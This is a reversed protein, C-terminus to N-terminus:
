LKDLDVVGIFPLNRFKEDLDLGYGFVFKDEIVFALRNSEIWRSEVECFVCGNERDAYSKQIARFNTDYKNHKQINCTNCLAQYNSLDNKGGKSRPM